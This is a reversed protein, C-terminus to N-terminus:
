KPSRYQSSPNHDLNRRRRDLNDLFVSAICEGLLTAAEQETVPAFAFPDGLGKACLVDRGFISGPPVDDIWEFQKVRVILRPRSAQIQDADIVAMGVM